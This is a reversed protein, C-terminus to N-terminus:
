APLEELFELLIGEPSLATMVRTSMLPAWQLETPPCLIEVDSAQLKRYLEHQADVRFSIQLLGTHPPKARRRIDRGELGHFELLAPRTMGRPPRLLVMRFSTGEPLGLMQELEQGGLEVDFVVRLGLLDRWFGLAQRADPVVIGLTRAESYEFGSRAPRRDDAVAKENAVTGGASSEEAVEEVLVVVVGDPAHIHVEQFAVPRPGPLRFLLPESVAKFGAETLQRYCAEIDRVHFNIDFFGYDWPRAGNRMPESVPQFEILRLLGTEVPTKETEGEHSLHRFKQLLLGRASIGAPVQWLQDIVRGPMEFEAIVEMGLLDGYFHHATAMDSTAITVSHIDQIM